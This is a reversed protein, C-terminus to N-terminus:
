KDLGKTTFIGLQRCHWFIAKSITNTVDHIKPNWYIESCELLTKGVLKYLGNTKNTLAIALQVSTPNKIICRKRSFEFKYGRDILAVFILNKM